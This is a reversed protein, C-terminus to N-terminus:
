INGCIFSPSVGHHVLTVVIVTGLPAMICMGTLVLTQLTVFGVLHETSTSNQLLLGSKANKPKM